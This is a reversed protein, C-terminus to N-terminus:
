GALARAAEPSHIIAPVGARSYVVVPAPGPRWRCSLQACDRGSDDRAWRTAGTKGSEKAPIANFSHGIDLKVADALLVGWRNRVIRQGVEKRRVALQNDKTRDSLLFFRVKDLQDTVDPFFVLLDADGQKGSVHLAQFFPLIEQGAM